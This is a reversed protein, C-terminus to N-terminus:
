SREFIWFLKTLVFDFVTIMISSIVVSKTTAAGVGQTGGKTNVGFYCSTTGIILAFFFTKLIGLLFDNPSSAVIAQHFYFTPNLYLEYKSLIMGGFIGVLDAMVTLLPCMLLLALLRPIVLRKVPDTGLARIADIQQTVSMSGLEAAIGSGVRGAIMLCTMVPGLERLISLGVVRPVYIKGGFRELGYGFQISMVFGISLATIFVISFSKVGIAYCQEAFLDLYFPRRFASLISSYLLNAGGGLFELFRGFSSVSHLRLFDIAKTASIKEM